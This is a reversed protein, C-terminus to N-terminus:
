FFSRLESLDTGRFVKVHPGGGPGAGTVVDAFDDADVDGAAVWVGGQFAPDYAFFERVLAGTAGDFVKVHATGAGTGAIVDAKGARDVDGAAVNVGGAFNADYAFFERVLAGTAGDFVKVHPGGGPGAACIIDDAFDGTVDGTAVRVGGRF